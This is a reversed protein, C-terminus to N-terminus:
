CSSRAVRQAWGAEHVKNYWSFWLKPWLQAQRSCAVPYIPGQGDAKFEPNLYQSRNHDVVSWISLSKCRLDAQVRDRETNMLFTGFWGSYCHEWLVYLLEENFEFAHPMQQLGQWSTELFQRFVPSRQEPHERNRGARTQFKHGFSLWEKEVLHVFGDLTRFYPDLCLQVVSAITSTHDGGLDAHVLVSQKRVSMLDIIFLVCSLLHRQHELWGTALLQSPFTGYRETNDVTNHLDLMQDYSKCVVEYNGLELYELSSVTPYARSKAATKGTLWGFASAGVNKSRCDAVVLSGSTRPSLDGSTRPSDASGASDQRARPSGPDNDNGAKLQSATISAVLKTDGDSQEAGNLPESSRCLVVGTAVDRWVMTPLRGM